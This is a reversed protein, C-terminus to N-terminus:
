AGRALADSGARWCLWTGLQCCTCSDALPVTAGPQLLLLLLLLLVTKSFCAASKKHVAHMYM